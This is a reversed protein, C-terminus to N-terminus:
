KKRFTVEIDDFYLKVPTDFANSNNKITWLAQAVLNVYPDVHYTSTYVTSKTELNNTIPEVKNNISETKPISETKDTPEVKVNYILQKKPEKKTEHKKMKEPYVNLIYSSLNPYKIIKKIKDKLNNYNTLEVNDFTFGKETYKKIRETVCGLYNDINKCLLKYYTESEKNLTPTDVIKQLSDEYLKITNMIHKSIGTPNDHKYLKLDGTLACMCFHNDFYAMIYNIINVKQDIVILQIKPSNVGPKLTKHVLLKNIKVGMLSYNTYELSCIRDYNFEKIKEGFELAKEYSNFFIDLDSYDFNKNNVFKSVFSGSLVGGYEKLLSLFKTSDFYKDLEEFISCLVKYDKFYYKSNDSQYMEYYQKLDQDDKISELTQNTPNQIILFSYKSINMFETQEKDTVNRLFELDTLFGKKSVNEILVDYIKNNVNLRNLTQRQNANKVYEYMELTYSDFYIIMPPFLKLVRYKINNSPEVFLKYLEIMDPLNHIKQIAQIYIREKIELSITKPLNSITTICRSFSWINLGSYDDTIKSVPFVYERKGLIVIDTLYYEIFSTDGQIFKTFPLFYVRRTYAYSNYSGLEATIAYKQDSIDTPIKNVGTVYNHYFTNESLKINLYLPQKGPNYTNKTIAKLDVINKLEEFLPLDIKGFINHSNNIGTILELQKNYDIDDNILPNITTEVIVDDSFSKERNEPCIIEYDSKTASM